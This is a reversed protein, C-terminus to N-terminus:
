RMGFRRREGPAFSSSAGHWYYFNKDEEETNEQLNEATNITMNFGTSAIFILIIYSLFKFKLNIQSILYVSLPYLFIIIILYLRSVTYIRLFYFITLTCILNVILLYSTLYFKKELNKLYPKIIKFILLNAIPISVSLVTDILQKNEIGIFRNIDNFLLELSFNKSLGFILESYFYSTIFIILNLM